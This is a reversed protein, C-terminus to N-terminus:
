EYPQQPPPDSARKGGGGRGRDGRGGGAQAPPWQPTAQAPPQTLSGSDSDADIDAFENPPKTGSSRHSSPGVSSGGHEEPPAM